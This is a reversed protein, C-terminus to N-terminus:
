IVIKIQNNRLERRFLIMMYIWIIIRIGDTGCFADMCHVQMIFYSPTFISYLIKKNKPFMETQVKFERYCTQFCYNDWLFEIARNLLSSIEHFLILQYRDSTCLLIKVSHMYIYYLYIVASIQQYSFKFHFTNERTVFKVYFTINTWLINKQTGSTCTEWLIQFSLM